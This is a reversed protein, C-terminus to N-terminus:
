ETICKKRYALFTDKDTFEVLNGNEIYIFKNYQSLNEYNIRHSVVILYRTIQLIEKEISEIQADSLGQFPEDLILLSDLSSNLARAISIRKAQGGSISSASICPNGEALSELSLLNEIPDEPRIDSDFTINFNYTNNFIVNDQAVYIPRRLCPFIDNVSTFREGCTPKIEGNICKCLVTKGSGSEGTIFIKDGYKVDLFVNKLIVDDDLEVSVDELRIENYSTKDQNRVEMNLIEEFKDKIPKVSEVENYMNFAEKLPIIIQDSALFVALLNPVTALGRAAMVAGICLPSIFCIISTMGIAVTSKAQLNDLRFLLAEAFANDKHGLKQFLGRKDYENVVSRNVIIEKITETYKASQGTWEETHKIFYSKFVFPWLSPIISFALFLLALKYDVYLSFCLAAFSWFIYRFVNFLNKSYKQEFLKADNFLMSLTTSEDNYPYTECDELYLEVIRDKVLVNIDMAFKNIYVNFYYNAIVLVAYISIFILILMYIDHIKGLEIYETLYKILAGTLAGDFSSVFGLIIVLVYVRKPWIDLIKM